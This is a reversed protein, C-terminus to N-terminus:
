GHRRQWIEGLDVITVPGVSAPTQVQDCWQQM